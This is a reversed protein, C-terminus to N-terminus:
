QEEPLTQQLSGFAQEVALRALDAAEINAVQPTPYEIRTTLDAPTQTIENAVIDAEPAAAQQAFMEPSRPYVARDVAAVANRRVSKRTVIAEVQSPDLRPLDGGTEEQARFTNNHPM